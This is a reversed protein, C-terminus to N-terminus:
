HRSPWLFDSFAFAPPILRFLPCPHEKRGEKGEEQAEKKTRENRRGEERRREEKTRENKREKEKM